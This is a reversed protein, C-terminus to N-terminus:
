RNQCVMTQASLVHLYLIGNFLFGKYVGIENISRYSQGYIMFDADDNLVVM